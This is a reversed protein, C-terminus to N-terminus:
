GILLEAFPSLPVDILTIGNEALFRRENRSLLGSEMVAYHPGKSRKLIQRAYTRLMQDDFRCGLFVFGLGVRRDKVVTPIPTQIDIETLVEVYDSDSVLFNGAPRGGGHPEYLVTRAVSLAADEIPVGDLTYAKTWIDRYEGARTVGQVTAVDSAGSEILAKRATGDYWSDVILPLHLSALWRHLPSPQPEASFIEALWAKLTNRHRRMEIHQAVSWMNTRIRSPAPARAHLAAAVAEPSAPITDAAGSLALLGPGLFVAFAGEALGERLRGAIDAVEDEAICHLFDKAPLMDMM